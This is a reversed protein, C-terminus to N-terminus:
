HEKAEPDEGAIYVNKDSLLGGLCMMLMNHRTEDDGSEHAKLFAVRGAEGMLLQPQCCSFDPCCEDGIPNHTPIGAAWWKVQHNVSEQYTMGTYASVIADLRIENKAESM